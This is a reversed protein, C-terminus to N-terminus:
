GRSADMVVVRGGQTKYAIIHGRVSWPNRLQDEDPRFVPPLWCLRRCGSGAEARACWLWGDRILYAPPESAGATRSRSCAPRHEPRLPIYSRETVIARSDPSFAVRDVHRTSGSSYQREPVTASAPRQAATPDDPGAVEAVLQALDYLFIEGDRNGALARTRDDSFALSTIKSTYHEIWLVHGSADHLRLTSYWGRVSLPQRSSQALLDASSTEPPSRQWSASLMWRGDSSLVFTALEGECLFLLVSSAEPRVARIDWRRIAGSSATLLHADDHAFCVASIWGAHEFKRM